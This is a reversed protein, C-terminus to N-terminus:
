YTGLNKNVMQDVFFYCMGGPIDLCQCLFGSINKTGGFVLLPEPKGSGKSLAAAM